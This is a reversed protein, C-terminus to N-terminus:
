GADTVTALNGFPIYWGPTGWCHFSYLIRWGTALSCGKETGCSCYEAWFCCHWAKGLVSKRKHQLSLRLTAVEEATATRCGDLMIQRHQPRMIRDPNLRLHGVKPRFCHHGTSGSWCWCLENVSSLFFGKTTSICVLATALVDVPLISGMFRLARM